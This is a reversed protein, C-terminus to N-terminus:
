CRPGALRMRDFRSVRYKSCGRADLVDDMRKAVGGVTVSSLESAM